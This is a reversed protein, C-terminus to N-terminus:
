GPLKPKPAAKTEALRNASGKKASDLRTEKMSSNPFKATERLASGIRSEGPKSPSTALAVGTEHGTAKAMTDVTAPAPAVKKRKEEMRGMFKALKIHGKSVAGVYNSGQNKPEAGPAPDGNRPVANPADPQVGDPPTQDVGESKMQGQMGAESVKKQNFSEDKAMEGCKSLQSKKFVEQAKALVAKAADQATFKKQDSM